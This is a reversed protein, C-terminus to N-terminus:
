ARAAFAIAKGTGCLAISLSITKDANILVASGSDITQTGAGVSKISDTAAMGEIKRWVINDTSNVIDIQRATFGLNVVAITGDSTFSGTAFDVVGASQSTAVVAVM